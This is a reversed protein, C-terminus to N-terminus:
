LYRYLNSYFGNPSLWDKWLQYCAQQKEKFAQDNLREHFELIKSELQDLEEEEVWVCYDKWNIYEEFPLCCDTNIFVPIRGLSLTEHFRFSFNGAGRVCLVYDSDEINKVYEEKSGGFFRDRILFNDQILKSKELLRVAQSRLIYGQNRTVVIGMRTLWRNIRIDSILYKERFKKLVREIPNAIQKTSGGLYGCFGVVPKIKKERRYMQKQHTHTAAFSPMAFENQQKRSKYLSARFVVANKLPLPDTSDYCFFVIMKKGAQEAKQALQLIGENSEREHWHMPAVVYDCEEVSDTINFYDKGKILFDEDWKNDYSVAELGIGLDKAFPHLIIALDRPRNFSKLDTYFSLKSM